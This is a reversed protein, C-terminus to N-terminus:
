SSYTDSLEDFTLQYGGNDIIFVTPSQMVLLTVGGVHPAPFFTWGGIPHDTRGDRCSDTSCRYIAIVGHSTTTGLTTMIWTSRQSDLPGCNRIEGYTETIFAGPASTTQAWSGCQTPDPAPLPVAPNPPGPLGPTVPPPGKQVHVEFALARYLGPGGAVVVAALVLASIVGIAALGIGGGPM